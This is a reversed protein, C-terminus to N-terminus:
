KPFSQCIFSCTRSSLSEIQQGDRINTESGETFWKVM